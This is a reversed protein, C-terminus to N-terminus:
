RVLGRAIQVHLCGLSQVGGQPIEAPFMSLREDDDGMVVFQGTTGVADDFEKVTANFSREAIVVKRHCLLQLLFIPWSLPFRVRM